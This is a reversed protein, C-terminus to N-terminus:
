DSEKSEPSEDDRGRIEDYVSFWDLLERRRREANQRQLERQFADMHSFIEKQVDRPRSVYVLHFDGGIAATEVVVDGYRLIRGVASQEYRVNTIKDLPSERQEERLYFPLREVHILRTATVQYFDNQWDDIQWMLWPVLIFLIIGYPFLVTTVLDPQLVAIAIIVGSIVLFLVMPLAVARALAIWHKRWTITVGQRSWAPPLFYRVFNQPALLCGDPKPEMEEEDEATPGEAEQESGEELLFHRYMVRHIASREDARMGARARDIEALVTNKVELPQPISRFRVQGGEGSMEIILDGYGLIGAVPGERVMTINQIAHLPAASLQERILGIRERHSVRKNTVVYIDNRWDYWLYICIVLPILTLALGAILVIQGLSIASVASAIVLILGITAPMLLNTFLVAEHKRLVKVPLEHEELWNFAPYARREKVDDRMNLRREVEPYEQMFEQFKDREVYLLTAKSATRVTVDRLDGLMLSTEGFAAGPELAGGDQIRGESDVFAVHLLGKEVIYYRSGVDNQHYVVTDAPYEVQDVYAAL